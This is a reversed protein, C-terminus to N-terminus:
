STLRPLLRRWGDRQVMREDMAESGDQWSMLELKLLHKIYTYSSPTRQGRAAALLQSLAVACSM